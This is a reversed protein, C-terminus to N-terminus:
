VNQRAINPNDCRALRRLEADIDRRYISERAAVLRRLDDPTSKGDHRLQDHELRCQGKALRSRRVRDSLSREAQAATSSRGDACSRTPKYTTYRTSSLTTTRRARRAGLFVDALFDDPRRGDLRAGFYM